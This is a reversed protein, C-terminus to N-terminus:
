TYEREGYSRGPEEMEGGREKERKTACRQANEGASKLFAMRSGSGIAVEGRRVESRPALASRKAGSSVVLRSVVVVRTSPLACSAAHVRERGGRDEEPRSHEGGATRRGPQRALWENM